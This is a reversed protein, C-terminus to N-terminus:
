YGGQGIKEKPGVKKPRASQRPDAQRAGKTGQAQQGFTKPPKPTFFKVPRM